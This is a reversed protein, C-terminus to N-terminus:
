NYYEDYYCDSKESDDEVQTWIAETVEVEFSSPYQAVLDDYEQGAIQMNVYDQLFIEQRLYGATFYWLMTDHSYSVFVQQTVTIWFQDKEENTGNNPFQEWDIDNRVMWVNSLIDDWELAWMNVQTMAVFYEDISVVYDGDTDM